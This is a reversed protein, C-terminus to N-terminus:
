AEDYAKIFQTVEDSTIKGSSWLTWGHMIVNIRKIGEKKAIISFDLL